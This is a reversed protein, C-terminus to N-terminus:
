SIAKKVKPYRILIGMAFISLLLPLIVFWSFEPVTPPTPLTYNYPKVLPYRDYVNSTIAAVYTINGIGLNDIEVTQPYKKAYDSWYNGEVGNDWPKTNPSKPFLLTGITLTEINLFNNHYVQFESIQTSIFILASRSFTINNSEIKLEHCNTIWFGTEHDGVTIQNQSVTNNNGVIREAGIQNGIIKYNNAYVAVDYYNNSFHNSQITNSDFVGLIGINWNTIFFNFITVNICNLSIAAVNFVDMGPGQLKFGAGDLIINNRQITINGEEINDNLTYINGNHRIPATSPEISGDSRIYIPSVISSPIARSVDLSLTSLVAFLVLLAVFTKKM